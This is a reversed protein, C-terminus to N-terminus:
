SKKTNKTMAHKAAPKAAHKAPNKPTNETHTIIQTEGMPSLLLTAPAGDVMLYYLTHKPTLRLREVVHMHAPKGEKTMRSKPMRLIFLYLGGMLLGTLVTALIWRIWNVDSIFEM